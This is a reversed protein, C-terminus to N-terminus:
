RLGHLGAILREHDIQIRGGDDLEDDGLRLRASEAPVQRSMRLADGAPESTDLHEPRQAARPAGLCHQMMGGPDELANRQYGHRSEFVSALENIFFPKWAVPKLRDWSRVWAM